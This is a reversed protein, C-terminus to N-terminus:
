QTVEAIAYIDNIVEGFQARCTEVSVPVIILGGEICEKYGDENALSVVVCQRSKPDIGLIYSAKM